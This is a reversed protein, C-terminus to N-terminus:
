KTGGRAVASVCASALRVVGTETHFKWVSHKNPERKIKALAYCKTM